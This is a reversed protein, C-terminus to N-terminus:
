EQLGNVPSVKKTTNVIQDLLKTSFKLNYYALAKDNRSYEIMARIEDATPARGIQKIFKIQHWHYKLYTEAANMDLYTRNVLYDAAEGFPLEIQLM